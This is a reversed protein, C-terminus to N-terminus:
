EDEDLIKKKERDFEEQTLVGADLLAKLELLRQAKTSMLPVAEPVEGDRELEFHYNDHYRMVWLWPIFLFFGGVAAGVHVQGDKNISGQLTRYGPAEIRYNTTSLSVKSDRHRHPTSGVAQGDIFLKAGKPTSSIITSSACSAALVVLLFLAALRASFLHVFSSPQKM